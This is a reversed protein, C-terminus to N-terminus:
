GKADLDFVGVKLYLPAMSKIMCNSDRSLDTVRPAQLPGMAESLVVKM